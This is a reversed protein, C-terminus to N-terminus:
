RCWGGPAPGAVARHRARDASRRRPYRGHPRRRAPPAPRRPGGDHGGGAPGLGLAVPDPRPVVRHRLLRRRRPLPGRRRPQGGDRRGPRRHGRRRLHRPLQDRLAPRRRHARPPRPGRHALLLGGDPLLRGPVPVRRPRPRRGRAGAPPLPRDPRGAGPRGDGDDPVLHVGLRRDRRGRADRRPPHVPHPRLDPRLRRRLPRRDQHPRSPHRDHRHEEAGEGAPAPPGRSALFPRPSRVDGSTTLHTTIRSLAARPRRRPRGGGAPHQRRAQHLHAEPGTLNTALLRLVELERRSLGDSDQDGVPGPDDQATALLRRAHDASDPRLAAARLLEVMPPGEDLFLRVYGAPVARALALALREQAEGPRDPAQQALAQLVLVEAVTEDHGRPEAHALVRDLLAAAEHTRGEALLLRALTLLGFEALYTVADGQTVEHERAWARADALRGQAIWVRARQAAIPRVPPGFGRLYLAEARDILEAAGTLDGQARRVGALALFWRHRNEILTGAEGLEEAARLHEEAATLEGQERLVDALGVQLDGITTPAPGAMTSATALAQEYLRRAEGPQGRAVQLGALVVTGGLADTLNGAARLSHVATTFTDVADVLDGSAWAALGLFGAAGGRAVHDDPAALALARRAHEVSGAIDGRAQAASARYVEISAPLTRLEEPDGPPEGPEATGGTELAREADLLRAEVGDLDGDVLRTWAVSVSLVPRRRVVDDPIATLWRRLMWDQRRRRVEPLAREVLDAARSPDAGALAHRVADDLLGHEACWAGAARHLVAVREPDAATLRARLADAFLQHYRYWERREDLPVVFLGARELTELMQHGGSGGTLADCLSGTLGRLVATDLLFRRVEEPQRRLVEEVLYDLVFRHSGTFADVFAGADSRGRLSLGALQLGAAWGETREGLATVHVPSLDLAMVETLFAEAEDPTFRLDAARVEVLEDRVRLRALPLPPDARTAIAVGLRPPAHEVLFATADHVAAAEIVHYDDLVLVTEGDLGDIENVLGTLVADTPITGAPGPAVPSGLAATVHALFRAPDNDGDDLSVWAVRLRPGAAALWQGLLTTKGFGAPAAVLTLRARGAGDARGTAELRSTLRPRPVLARRPAPVHLKTALVVM